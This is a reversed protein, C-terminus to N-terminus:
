ARKSRRTVALGALIAIVAVAGVAPIGGDDDDDGGDKKQIQFKYDATFAQHGGEYTITVNYKVEEVKDFPGVSAHYTGNALREMDVPTFCVDGQCHYLQIDTINEAHLLVAYIDATEGKKLTSPVMTVSELEVADPLPTFYAYDTFRMSGNEFQVGVNFHYKEVTTIQSSDVRYVGDAGRVMPIPPLCVLETCINLTVITVNTEDVLEVSFEIPENVVPPDPSFSISEVELADNEAQAPVRLLGGLVVALVLAIVVATYKSSM